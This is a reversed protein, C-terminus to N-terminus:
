KNHHEFPLAIGPPHQLYQRLSETLVAQAKVGVLGTQHTEFLGGTRRLRPSSSRVLLWPTEVKKAEGVVPLPRPPASPRDLALCSRVPNGPEQPLEVHPTLVVPM